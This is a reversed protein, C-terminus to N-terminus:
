LRLETQQIERTDITDNEYRDKAKAYIRAWASTALDLEDPDHRVFAPFQRERERWMRLALRAIPDTLDVIM